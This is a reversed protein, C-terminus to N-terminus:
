FSSVRSHLHPCCNFSIPLRRSRYHDCPVHSDRGSHRPRDTAIGAEAPRGAAVGSSKYFLYPATPMAREEHGM